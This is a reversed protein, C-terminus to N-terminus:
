CCFNINPCICVQGHMLSGIASAYSVKEM